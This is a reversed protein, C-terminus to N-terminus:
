LGFMLLKQDCDQIAEDVDRRAAGGLEALLARALASAPLARAGRRGLLEFARNLERRVAADGAQPVLVGDVRTRGGLERALAVVRRASAQESPALESTLSDVRDVIDSIEM